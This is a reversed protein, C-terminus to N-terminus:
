SPRFLTEEKNPVTVQGVPPASTAWVQGDSYRAAAHHCQPPLLRHHLGSKADGGPGRLQAM